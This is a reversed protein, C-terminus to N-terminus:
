TLFRLVEKNFQQPSELSPVHKANKMTILKCSTLDKVINSYVSIPNLKDKDGLIFLLPIDSNINNTSIQFEKRVSFFGSIKNILLFPHTIRDKLVSDLYYQIFEEEISTPNQVASELFSKMNKKTPKMVTKSLLFAIQYIGVLKYELPVNHCFGVPNVLVMKKIFDFKSSLEVGIWGSLSHGIYYIDKLKLFQIFNSVINPYLTAIDEKHFDIKTSNGCGPLDLAYIKFHKSLEAVNKYWQGWGINAGHVLLLTRGKGATIFNIKYNDLKIVKREIPVEIKKILIDESTM